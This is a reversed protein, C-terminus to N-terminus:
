SEPPAIRLQETAAAKLAASSPPRISIRWRTAATSASYRLFPRSVSPASNPLPEHVAVVCRAPLIPGGRLVSAPLVGTRPGLVTNESKVPGHAVARRSPEEAVALDLFDLHLLEPRGDLVQKM